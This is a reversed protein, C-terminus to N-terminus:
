GSGELTWGESSETIDSSVGQNPWLLKECIGRQDLMEDHCLMKVPLELELGEVDEIM